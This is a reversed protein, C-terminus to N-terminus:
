FDWVFCIRFRVRYSRQEFVMVKDNAFCTCAHVSLCWGWVDMGDGLPQLLKCAPTAIHQFSFYWFVLPLGVGEVGVCIIVLDPKKFIKQPLFACGVQPSEKWCSLVSSSNLSCWLSPINCKFIQCFIKHSLLHLLFLIFQHAYQTYVTSYIITSPEFTWFVM